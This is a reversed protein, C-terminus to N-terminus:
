EAAAMEWAIRAMTLVQERKLSAPQAKLAAAETVLWAQGKRALQVIQAWEREGCLGRADYKTLLSQPVVNGGLENTANM